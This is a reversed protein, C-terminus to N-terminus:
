PREMKGLFLIAGSEKHRIAYLFPRKAEFVKIPKTGRVQVSSVEVMVVATAAAAETGTEKVEVFAKHVVESIKVPLSTFMSSFDAHDTFATPMGLGKLQDSLLFSTEHKFPPMHVIVEESKLGNTWQRWTEADLSKEMKDEMGPKPLVMVMSLEDGAYPLELVQCYGNETYKCESGTMRATMMKTPVQSGALTTFTGDYTYIPDFATKWDAKFYVANVLVMRTDTTIIGEPLLDKIRDNTKDEVWKNIELRCPEPKERYNMPTIRGSYRQQVIDAFVPNVASKRDPFIANATHLQYPKGGQNIQSILDSYAVRTAAQDTGLHLTEQMEQLTSSKAGEATMALATHISHPSFFLNEGAGQTALQHYLDFAFQNNASAIDVSKDTPTQTLSSLALLSKFLASYM